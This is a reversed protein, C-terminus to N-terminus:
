QEVEVGHGDLAEIVDALLESAMRALRNDADADLVGFMLARADRLREIQFYLFTAPPATQVPNLADGASPPVTSAAM